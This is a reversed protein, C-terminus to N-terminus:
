AVILQAFVFQNTLEDKRQLTCNHRFPVWKVGIGLTDM